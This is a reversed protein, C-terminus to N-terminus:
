SPEVTVAREERLGGWGALEVGAVVHWRVHNEEAEFTPAADGPVRFSAEFVRPTHASLVEAHAVVRRERFLERVEVRRHEGEGFASEECGALELWVERVTLEASPRLRIRATVREGRSASTPEVELGPTGLKSEALPQRLATSALKAGGIVFLAGLAVHLIGGHSPIARVIESVGIAACAVGAGAAVTTVPRKGGAARHAPGLYHPAARALPRARYGALAPVLETPAAPLLTLPRSEIALVDGGDAEVRAVLAHEISFLTGAYSVPGPPADFAFAVRAIEGPSLAHPGLSVSAAEGRDRNGLGTTRWAPTLVLDRASVPEDVDVGLAGRIPDGARFAGDERELEIHLRVAM